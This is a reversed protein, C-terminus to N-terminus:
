QDDGKLDIYSNYIIAIACILHAVCSIVLIENTLEKKKVLSLICLNTIIMAFGMEMFLVKSLIKNKKVIKESNKM